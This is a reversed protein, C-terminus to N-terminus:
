KVVWKVTAAPQHNPVHSGSHWPLLAPSCSSPLPTCHSPPSWRYSDRPLPTSWSSWISHAPILAAHQCWEKTSACKDVVKYLGEEQERTTQMQSSGTQPNTPSSGPPLAPWSHLLSSRQQQPPLLDCPVWPGVVLPLSDVVTFVTATFSTNQSHVARVTTEVKGKLGKSNQVVQYVVFRKIGSLPESCM